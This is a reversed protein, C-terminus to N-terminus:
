FAVRRGGPSISVHVVYLGSHIGPRKDTSSSLHRQPFLFYNKLQTEFSLSFSCTSFFFQVLFSAKFELMSAFLLGGRERQKGLLLGQGLVNDASGGIM